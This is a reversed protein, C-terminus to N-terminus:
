NSLGVDEVAALVIAAITLMLTVIVAIWPDWALFERMPEFMLYLVPVGPVSFVLAKEPLSYDSGGVENTAVITIGAIAAILADVQILVTSWEWLVQSFDFDVPNLGLKFFGTFVGAFMSYILLAAADVTDVKSLQDHNGYQM